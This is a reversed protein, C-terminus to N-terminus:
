WGPFIKVLEKKFESTSLSSRKEMLHLLSELKFRAEPTSTLLLREKIDEIAQDFDYENRAYESDPPQHFIALLEAVDRMQPRPWAFFPTNVGTARLLQEPTLTTRKMRKQCPACFRQEVSIPWYCLPSVFGGLAAKHHDEWCGRCLGMGCDDCEHVFTDDFPLHEIATIDDCATEQKYVIKLHGSGEQAFIGKLM